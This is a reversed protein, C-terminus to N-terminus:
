EKNESEVIIPVQKVEVISQLDLIVVGESESEYKKGQSAENVIPQQTKEDHEKVQHNNQVINKKVEIIELDPSDQDDFM